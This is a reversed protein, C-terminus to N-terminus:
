PRKPLMEEVARLFWRTRVAALFRGVRERRRADGREKLASLRQDLIGTWDAARDGSPDDPDPRLRDIGRWGRITDIVQDVYAPRDQESRGFYGEVKDLLWPELVAPLNEWLKRRQQLSLQRGTAEWDVEAGFEEELRRALARRTGLPEEALERTVLWQVLQDCDAAEPPPLPPNLLRLAGVGGGILVGGSLLATLVLIVRRRRM